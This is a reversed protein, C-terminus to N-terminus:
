IRKKSFIYALGAQLGLNNFNNKHTIQKFSGEDMQRVTYQNNQNVSGNPLFVATTNTVSPGFLYNSEVWFGFSNLL